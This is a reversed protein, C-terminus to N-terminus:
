VLSVSKSSLSSLLMFSCDMFITSLLLLLYGFMVGSCVLRQHTASSFSTESPFSLSAPSSRLSSPVFALSCFCRYIFFHDITNSFATLNAKLLPWCKKYFLNMKPIHIFDFLLLHSAPLSPLVCKLSAIHHLSVSLLAIKKLVYLYSLKSFCLSIFKNIHHSFTTSFFLKSASSLIVTLTLPFPLPWSISQVLASREKLALPILTYTHCLTHLLIM